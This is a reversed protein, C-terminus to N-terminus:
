NRKAYDKLDMLLRAVQEGNEAYLANYLCTGHEEATDDFEVENSSGFTKVSIFSKYPYVCWYEKFDDEWLYVEKDTFFLWDSYGLKTALVVRKVDARRETVCYFDDMLDESIDSAEIVADGLRKKARELLFQVMGNVEPMTEQRYEDKMKIISNKISEIRAEMDRVFVEKEKELEIIMKDLTAFEM